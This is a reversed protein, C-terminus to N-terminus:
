YCFLFSFSLKQLLQGLIALIQNTASLRGSKQGQKWNLVLWLSRSICGLWDCLIGWKENAAELKELVVAELWPVSFGERKGMQYTKGSRKRSKLRKWFLSNTTSERAIALESYITKAKRMQNTKTWKWLLFGLFLIDWEYMYGERWINTAVATIHLVGIWNSHM